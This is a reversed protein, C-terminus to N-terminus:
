GFKVTLEQHNNFGMSDKWEVLFQVHLPHPETKSAMAWSAVTEIPGFKDLHKTGEIFVYVTVNRADHTGINRFVFQKSEWYDATVHWYVYESAIQRELLKSNQKDIRYSHWLAIGAVIVASVAAVANIWDPIM